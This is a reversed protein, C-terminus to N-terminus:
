DDDEEKEEGVFEYELTFYLELETRVGDNSWIAEVEILAGELLTEVAAKLQENVIFYDEDKDDEDM